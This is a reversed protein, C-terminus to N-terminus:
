LLQMALSRIVVSEQRLRGELATKYARWWAFDFDTVM